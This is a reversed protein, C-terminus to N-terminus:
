HPPPPVEHTEWKGNTCRSVHSFGTAKSAARVGCLQGETTCPGPTLAAQGTPCNAADAAPESVASPATGHAGADASMATTQSPTNGPLAVPTPKPSSGCAALVAISLLMQHM